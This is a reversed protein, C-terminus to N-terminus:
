RRTRISDINSIPISISGGMMRLILKDGERYFSSARIQNGNKLVVVCKGGRVAEKPDLIVERPPPSPRPSASSPSPKAFGAQRRPAPLAAMPLAGKEPPVFELGKLSCRVWFRDGLATMKEMDEFTKEDITWVARNGMVETANTDLIETPLEVTLSIRFDKFFARMSERLASQMEKMDVEQGEEGPSSAQVRTPPASAGGQMGKKLVSTLVLQDGEKYFLFRKRMGPAQFFASADSFEICYEGVFREEVVDFSSRVIKVGPGQFNRELERLSTIFDSKSSPGQLGKQIMSTLEKSLVQRSEYYGSGDKRIVIKEELDICGASLILFGLSFIWLRKM